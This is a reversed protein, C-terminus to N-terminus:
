LGADGQSVNLSNGGNNLSPSPGAAPLERILDGLDIKADREIKDRSIQMVPTPAQYGQLTIRSASVTVTEVTEQALTNATAAALFAASLLLHKSIRSM